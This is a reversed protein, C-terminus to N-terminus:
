KSAGDAGEECNEGAICFRLPKYLYPQPYKENNM